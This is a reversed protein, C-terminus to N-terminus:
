NREEASERESRRGDAAGLGAFRIGQGFQTSAGNRSVGSDHPTQSQKAETKQARGDLEASRPAAKARRRECKSKDNSSRIWRDVICGVPPLLAAPATRRKVAFFRFRVSFAYAKRCVSICERVHFLLLVYLVHSISEPTGNKAKEDM